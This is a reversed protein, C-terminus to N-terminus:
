KKEFELGINKRNPDAFSRFQELKLAPIGRNQFLYIGAVIVTALIGIGIILVLLVAAVIAYIHWNSSDTIAAFGLAGGGPITISSVGTWIRSAWRKAWPKWDEIKMFFSPEASPADGIPEGTGAVAGPDAVAEPEPSEVTNSTPLQLDGLSGAPDGNDATSTSGISDTLRDIDLIDIM